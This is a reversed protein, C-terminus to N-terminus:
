IYKDLLSIWTFHLKAGDVHMSSKKSCFLCTGSSHSATQLSVCPLYRFSFLPHLCPLCHLYIDNKWNCTYNHYPIQSLACIRVQAPVPLNVWGASYGACLDPSSRHEQMCCIPANMAIKYWGSSYRHSHLLGTRDEDCEDGFLWTRCAM